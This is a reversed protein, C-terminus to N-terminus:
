RESQVVAWYRDWGIAAISMSSMFIPVKQTAVVIRCLIGTTPGFPWKEFLIEWLTVPMSLLCLFLDSAALTGIFINHPTRMVPRWWVALVVLVNGASGFVIVVLFLATITSFSASSLSTKGLLNEKIDELFDSLDSATLNGPYDVSGLNTSVNEQEAFKSAAAIDAEIKELDFLKDLHEM